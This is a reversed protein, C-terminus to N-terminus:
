GKWESQVVALYPRLIKLIAQEDADATQLLVFVRGLLACAARATQKGYQPDHVDARRQRHYCRFCLGHAAIERPDGCEVCATYKRAAM